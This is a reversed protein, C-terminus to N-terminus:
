PRLTISEAVRRELAVTTEGMEVLFAPWSQVLRVPVGPAFGQATLRALLEPEGSLREVIAEAGPALDALTPTPTPARPGFLRRVFRAAMSKEEDPTAFGCRPCHLTACGTVGALPCGHERCAGGGPEYVLGCLPCALSM